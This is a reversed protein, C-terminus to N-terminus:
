TRVMEATPSTVSYSIRSNCYRVALLPLTFIHVIYLMPAIVIVSVLPLLELYWTCRRVNLFCQQCVFFPHSAENWTKTCFSGFLSSGWIFLSKIQREVFISSVKSIAITWIWYICTVTGSRCSWETSVKSIAITWIWYICTVTGSGCTWETKEAIRFHASARVYAYICYAGYIWVQVTGSLIAAPPILELKRLIRKQVRVELM